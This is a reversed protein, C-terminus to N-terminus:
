QFHAYYIHDFAALIQRYKLLLQPQQEITHKFMRLFTESPGKLHLFLLRIMFILLSLHFKRFM